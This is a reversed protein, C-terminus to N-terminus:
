GKSLIRYITDRFLIKIMSEGIIIMRVEFSWNAVTQKLVWFCIPFDAANLGDKPMQDAKALLATPCDLQILNVVRWGVINISKM